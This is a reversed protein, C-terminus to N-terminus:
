KVGICLYTKWWTNEKEKDNKFFFDTELRDFFMKRFFLLYSFNLRFLLLLFLFSFISLKSKKINPQQRLVNEKNFNQYCYSFFRLFPFTLSNQSINLLEYYYYSVQSFINGVYLWLSFFIHENKQIHKVRKKYWNHTNPIDPINM